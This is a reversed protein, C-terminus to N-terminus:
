HNLSVPQRFIVTRKYRNVVYREDYGFTLNDGKKAWITGAFGCHHSHQGAVERGATSFSADRPM